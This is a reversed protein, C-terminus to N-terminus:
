RGTQKAPANPVRCQRATSGVVLPAYPSPGVHPIPIVKPTLMM